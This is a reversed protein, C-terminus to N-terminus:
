EWESVTRVAIRYDYQQNYNPDELMYKLVEKARKHTGVSYNIRIWRDSSRKMRFMVCYERRNKRRRDSDCLGRSYGFDYLVGATMVLLGIFVSVIVIVDQTM